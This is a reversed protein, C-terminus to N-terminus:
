TFIPVQNIFSQERRRSILREIERGKVDRRAVEASRWAEYGARLGSHVIGDLSLERTTMEGEFRSWMSVLNGM